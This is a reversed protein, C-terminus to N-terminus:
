SHVKPGYLPVGQSVMRTMMMKTRAPKRMATSRRKQGGLFQRLSKPGNVGRTNYTPGLRALSVASLPLPRRTRKRRMRARRTRITRPKGLRSVIGRARQLQRKSV